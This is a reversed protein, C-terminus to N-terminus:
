KDDSGSKKRLYEQLGAYGGLAGGLIVTTPYGEPGYVVVNYVLLALLTLVVLITVWLPLPKPSQNDAM